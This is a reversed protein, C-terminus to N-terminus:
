YKPCTSRFPVTLTTTEVVRNIGVSYWELKYENLVRPPLLLGIIKLGMSRATGSGVLSETGM